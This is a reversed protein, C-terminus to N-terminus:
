AATIKPNNAHYQRHCHEHTYVLNLVRNDNHNGNTHHLPRDDANTNIDILLNCIPCKGKQNEWVKKFKGSLKKIGQNFKRKVFYDRDLYPNKDFKIQPNRVIKKDSLLKLRKDNTSFVWNRTDKRHWYKNAIWHKNKMPHRRKAWKWLINWIRSDLLQFIEKSVVGQHHNSWGTIIPNLTEILSEQKWDKGKKISDSIKKTVKEISKKSPKILLKGKYKKFNWGLFDFGDDIHTIMTKDESLELGRDKLFDKILGKVDEAIEKTKATVIFDDAYRVFNVKHKRRYDSDIKGSKGRHYKDALLSEIGDLTMNALMPSIIGGQPTGARTPFLTRDFVFGAKLFQKLVSIDMPINDLLWQHSINDFCGRIDGELIWQASRKQSMNNFIQSCADHTSRFKRFGFSRQDATVEAIPSLALAYLSQMARDYMSPIGLPRKKSSGYKEIYVRKLPKAKYRRDTLSLAAKMKTSPTNWLEGDIGATRKGKNLIVNRVALLKAYHSHTLLYSLRKVLNWKGKIVAKTIRVQIRNVHMEVSNWNINNWNPMDTLKESTSKATVDNNDRRESTTSKYENWASPNGILAEAKETLTNSYSVNMTIGENERKSVM